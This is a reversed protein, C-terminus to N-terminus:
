VFDSTMRIRDRFGGARYGDEISEEVGSSRGCVWCVLVSIHGRKTDATHSVRALCEPRSM